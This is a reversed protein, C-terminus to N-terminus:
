MGKKLLIHGYDKIIDQYNANIVQKRAVLVIDLGSHNEWYGSKEDREPSDQKRYVERIVERLRRKVRNRIVAPGLKRGVCFGFRHFGQQNHLFYVVLYRGNISHGKEFVQQFDINKKITIIKPSAKV